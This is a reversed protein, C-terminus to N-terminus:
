KDQAASAPTRMARLAASGLLLVAVGLAIWLLNPHRETFPRPDAFNSTGEESGLELHAMVENAQIHLTRALDYQPAAARANGYILRYSRNQVPHFLVFRLPMALWLRVASLPADNANLVEVRWFRPGWMGYCQVGLSEETKGNLVFRHIEGGGVPQWEKADTSTLLRVARYFEPQTTEFNFKAVPIAAGGLDVTWQTQSPAGSPDPPVLTTLLVDGAAPSDTKAAPSSFVEVGSVVFARGSEQIRVRLYRANNESYRVTQNGELNEKRFRSIPARANVIRWLHADDSAAVEVWNIFDSEPTQVRLNNHFGTREGLDLVVQTFQGPVFSNERLTTALRVPEPPANIQSRMEFPLEQGLEDVIRLDALQNESHSFVERDLTIYNLADARGSEITRSYRWSRWASSLDTSLISAGLAALLLSFIRHTM